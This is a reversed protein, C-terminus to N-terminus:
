IHLASLENYIDDLNKWDLEIKHKNQESSKSKTIDISRGFDIVRPSGTENDIMVNRAFLDNHIIGETEHMHKIFKELDDFFNNLNFEKPLIASNSIVHQLNVANLREMILANREGEIESGITGFLKPVRTTGIYGTNAVKNQIYAEIEPHNGLDFMERNPSTHREDLIKICYGNNLDYVTGVGGKDIYFEPTQFSFLFNIADKKIKEFDSEKEENTLPKFIEM